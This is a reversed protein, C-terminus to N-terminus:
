RSIVVGYGAFGMSSIASAGYKITMEIIRCSILVALFPRSYYANLFLIQMIMMAAIKKQDTMLPLRLLAADTQMNLRRRTRSMAFFVHLKTPHDPLKEGLMSLTELGHEV